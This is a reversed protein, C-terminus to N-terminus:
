NIICMKTNEKNEQSSFRNPYNLNEKIIQANKKTSELNDNNILDEKIEFIKDINFSEKVSSDEHNDIITKINKVEKKDEKGQENDDILSLKLKDNKKYLNMSSSNDNVFSENSYDQIKNFIKFKNKEEHSNFTNKKIHYKSKKNKIKIHNKILTNIEEQLKQNKLIIGHTLQLLNSYSSKINFSFQNIKLTDSNFCFEKTRMTIQESSDSSSLLNNLIKENNFESIKQKSYNSRNSEEENQYISDFKKSEFLQKIKNKKVSKKIKKRIKKSLSKPVDDLTIIKINHNKNTSQEIENKLFNTKISDFNYGQSNSYKTETAVITTDSHGVNYYNKTQILSSNETNESTSIKNKLYNLKLKKSLIKKHHTLKDESIINISCNEKDEKDEEEDDDLKLPVININCKKNSKKPSRHTKVKKENIKSLNLEKKKSEQSASGRHIHYKLVKPSFNVKKMLKLENKHDDNKLNNRNNFEIYALKKRPSNTKNNNSKNNLEENIQFYKFLNNQRDIQISSRKKEKVIMGKSKRVTEASSKKRPIFRCKSNRKSDCCPINIKPLKNEFSNFISVVKTNDLHIDLLDNIEFDNILGNLECFKHIMVRTMFKLSVTNKFSKMSIRKWVHSYSKSLNTVINKSLIFIEAIKSKVFLSLPAPKKLTMYIDGFHENKRVDLVKLYQNNECKKELNRMTIGTDKIADPEVNLVETSTFDSNKLNNVKDILLKYYREVDITKTSEFNYNINTNIILATSEEKDNLLTLENGETFGSFNENFYKRICNYPNNIDIKAELSLRGEKVFIINEVMDGERILLDNKKTSIPILNSLIKFIFNSNNIEKFIKFNKIFIKYVSFLVDSKIKDPLSDLLINVKNKKVNRCDKLLYKHIKTYLKFPMPYAIRIKELVNKKENLQEQIYNENQIHNGVESIIFSYAIIGIALLIIQFIREIFSVCTIDGYGVTTMTTMIFYFSTMYIESFNMDQVNTKIIWNPTDQKGFFIHLCIFIHLAFLCELLFLSFNILKELYFNESIFEYFDDMAKNKKEQTIKMIKLSKILTCIKIFVLENPMSNTFCQRSESLNYKCLHHSITFFPIAELFDLFFMSGLYHKIIKKTIKILKFEYNYYPRLFSMLMDIIYFTDIFYNIFLYLYNENIFNDCFCNNKALYFPIIIVEYLNTIIILLDFVFIFNNELPIHFEIEEDEEIEDLSDDVTFKHSLCRYKKEKYIKKLTKKQLKGIKSNRKKRNKSSVFENFKDLIQAECLSIRRSRANNSINSSRPLNVLNRKLLIPSKLSNPTQPSTSGVKLNPIRKCSNVPQNNDKISSSSDAVMSNKLPQKPTMSLKSNQLNAKSLLEM